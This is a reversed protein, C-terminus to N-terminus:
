WAFIANYLFFRLYKDPALFEQYENLWDNILSRLQNMSLVTSSITIEFEEIKVNGQDGRGDGNQSSKAM